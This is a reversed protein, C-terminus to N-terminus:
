WNLATFGNGQSGGRVFRRGTFPVFEEFIKSVRIWLSIVSDLNPCRFESTETGFGALRIESGEM